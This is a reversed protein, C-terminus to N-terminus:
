KEIMEKLYKPLVKSAFHIDPSYYKLDLKLKKYKKKIDKLTIKELDATSGITFSYEGAQYCPVVARRIETYPFVKRIRSFITSVLGPQCTFSGSQISIIGNKRLARKTKKYFDLSMLDKAPGGPDSLDLIIVDFFDKYKNIYEKGDGITIESKKNKFARKSISPLYKRSVEIVKADIEAVWVKEIKHKLVEELAGGDGGGIILVRRPNEHLFMPTQCLMEHYIFEDKESTQVIGDLVLIRGYAYTDYLEIKQFSSKGSYLKKKIKIGIKTGSVDYPVSEEFFWKDKETIPNKM